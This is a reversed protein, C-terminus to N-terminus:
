DPMATRPAKVSPRKNWGGAPCAAPAACRAKKLCLKTLEKGASFPEGTCTTRKRPRVVDALSRSRSRWFGDEHDVTPGAVPLGCPDNLLISRDGSPDPARGPVVTSRRTRVTTYAPPGRTVLGSWGNTLIAEEPNGEVQRAAGVRGAL